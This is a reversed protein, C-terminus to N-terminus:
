VMWIKLYSLSCFYKIVNIGFSMGFIPTITRIQLSNRGKSIPAYKRSGSINRFHRGNDKWEALTRWIGFFLVYKYHHISSVHLIVVLYVSYMCRLQGYIGYAYAWYIFMHKPPWRLFFVTQSTRNQYNNKYKSFIYTKCKLCLTCVSVM